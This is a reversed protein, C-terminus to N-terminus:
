RPCGSALGASFLPFVWLVPSRYVLLLLVIVVLGAIAILKGDIGQFSDIFAVILGGAGASHVVLGAPNGSKGIAIIQKEVKSLQEGDVEKDGNKAILPVTVSAV